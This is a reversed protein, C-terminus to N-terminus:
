DLYERLDKQDKYEERDLDDVNEMSRNGPPGQPGAKGGVSTDGFKNVMNIGRHNLTYHSILCLCCKKVELIGLLSFIGKKMCGGYHTGGIIGLNSDLNFAIFIESNLKHKKQYRLIM